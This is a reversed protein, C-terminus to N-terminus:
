SPFVFFQFFGDFQCKKQFCFFNALFCNSFWCYFFELRNSSESKWFKFNERFTPTSLTECFLVTMPKRQALTKQLRAKLSAWNLIFIARPDKENTGQCTSFANRSMDPPTRSHGHILPNLRFDDLPSLASLIRSETRSFEQSLKRIVKGEIEESIQTIYDEQSRTVNSNQALKGRPHEKCNETNFAALKQKNRLTAM